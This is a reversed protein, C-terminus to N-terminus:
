YIFNEIQRNFLPGPLTHTTLGKEKTTPIISPKGSASPLAVPSLAVPRRCPSSLAVVPRRCPSSLAVVPRRCPSSLAVVLTARVWGTCPIRILFVYPRGEHDGSEHDGSEHDGGICGNKRSILIKSYYIVTMAIM